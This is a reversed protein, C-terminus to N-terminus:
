VLKREEAELKFNNFHALIARDPLAKLIAKVLPSSAKELTITDLKTDLKITLCDEQEDYNVKDIM